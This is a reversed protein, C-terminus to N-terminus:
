VLNGGGPEQRCRSGGGPTQGFPRGGPRGKMKKTRLGARDISRRAARLSREAEYLALSASETDQDGVLSDALAVLRVTLEDLTSSLSSLEADPSAM